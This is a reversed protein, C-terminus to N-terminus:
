KRLAWWHPLGPCLPEAYGPYVWGGSGEMGTLGLVELTGDDVGKFYGEGITVEWIELAATLDGEGIATLQPIYGATIYEINYGMKTLLKGAITTIIIQSSWDNMALKIADGSEPIDTAQAAAVGVASTALAFCLCASAISRRIVSKM